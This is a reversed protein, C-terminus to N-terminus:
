SWDKRAKGKKNRKGHADRTPALVPFDDGLAMLTRVAVSRGTVVRVGKSALVRAIAQAETSEGTVLVTSM